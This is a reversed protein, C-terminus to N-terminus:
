GPLGSNINRLWQIIASLNDRFIIALVIVLGLILMGKLMKAEPSSNPNQYEM